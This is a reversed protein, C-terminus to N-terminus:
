PKTADFRTLRLKEPASALENKGAPFGNASLIFSIVDASQQRTLKGPSLPPMSVKIREYLDGLTVGNWNGTFAAGSLPKGEEWGQLAAGHCIACERRYVVEGRKAQEVTFAGDWVSKPTPAPGQASLAAAV